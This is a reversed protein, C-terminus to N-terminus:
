DGFVSTSKTVKTVNWFDKIKVKRMRRNQFDREVKLDDKVRKVLTTNYDWSPYGIQM